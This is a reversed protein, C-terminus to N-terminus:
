AADGKGFARALSGFYSADDGANLQVWEEDTMRRRWEGGNLSPLPM